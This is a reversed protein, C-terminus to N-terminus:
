VKYDTSYGKREFNGKRFDWIDANQMELLRYRVDHHVSAIMLSLVCDCMVM